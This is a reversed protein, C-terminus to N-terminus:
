EALDATIFNYQLGVFYQKFNSLGPNILYPIRRLQQPVVVGDGLLTKEAEFLLDMRSKPDSESIARTMLDDYVTSSYSMNNYPNTTTWMELYTNPDSYDPGWGGLVAEFERTDELTLRQRYEVQRITVTIGLNTQWQSQLVEAEVRQTDSDSVLLEIDIAAPDTVGMATMALQLHEQAKAMDGELPFFELPYETGYEGTVGHVQPLVFRLNADYVNNTALTIYEGRNLAYNMALRLDRNSTDYQPLTNLKVFDNAGSYYYQADPYNSIVAAPVEAYHLDGAEYMSLATNTDTVFLIEAGDLKVASANWYNPNKTLVARDGLAWNSLVFPGSYVNTEASSGFAAGHTEVMDPRTPAFNAASLMGIFYAAPYELTIEVTKDDLAKIGLEEVPMEGANVTTANKLILGFFSFPSAVAPDVLRQAGLVYHAATLPQGDSWTIGDRIHFTYVLGDASVEYTEAAGPEVVGQTSRMLPEFVHALIAQTGMSNALQPDMSEPEVTISFRLIKNGAAPAAPADGSPAAPTAPAEPAAPAAPPAQNAAPPACAVMVLMLVIVILLAIGRIKKNLNTAGKLCKNESAEM